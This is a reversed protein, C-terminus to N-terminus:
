LSYKCNLVYGSIYHRNPNFQWYGYLDINLKESLGYNLGFFANFVDTVGNVSKEYSAPYGPYNKYTYSRSQDILDVGTYVALRDDLMYDIKMKILMQYWIGTLKTAWGPSEDSKSLYHLNDMIGADYEASMELGFREWENRLGIVFGVFPNAALLLKTSTGNANDWYMYTNDIGAKLTFEIYKAQMVAGPIEKFLAKTRYTFAYFDKTVSFYNTDNSDSNSYVTRGGVEIGAEWPNAAEQTAFSAGCLYYILLALVFVKKM